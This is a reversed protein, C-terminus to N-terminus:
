PRRLGQLLAFFAPREARLTGEPGTLKFFLPGGEGEAVAGLLAFGPQPESPGSGMTSPLLTGRTEIWSIRFGAAELTGREPRTGAPMEIQGLWREFNSEVGGGQGAGFHFVALEGPGESGPVVAQALRMGSSPRERRWSAPLDFAFSATTVTSGEESQPKEGRGSGGHPQGSGTPTALAPPLATAPAEPATGKQAAQQCALVSLLLTGFLPTFAPTPRRFRSM